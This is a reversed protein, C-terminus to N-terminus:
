SVNKALKKVCFIEFSSLPRTKLFLASIDSVLKWFIWPWWKLQPKNEATEGKLFKFGSVGIVKFGLNKMESPSWGSKHRQYPNDEHLHNQPISGNPTLIIVKEKAIKEMNKILRLGDRKNFHEILSLALVCDFSKPKFIKNITLVDINHYRDHIGHRKSSEIYPDYIEVGETYFTKPFNHIPSRFGCGLDLVSKCGKLEKGLELLFTNPIIKRYLVRIIDTIVIM